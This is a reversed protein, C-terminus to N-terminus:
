SNQQPITAIQPQQETLLSGIENMLSGDRQKDVERQNELETLRFLKTDDVLTVQLIKIRM